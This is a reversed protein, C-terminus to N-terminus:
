KNVPYHPTFLAMIGATRLMHQFGACWFVRLPTPSFRVCVPEHAVGRKLFSSALADGAGSAIATTAM